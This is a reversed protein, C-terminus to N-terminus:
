SLASFGKLGSSASPHLVINALGIALGM